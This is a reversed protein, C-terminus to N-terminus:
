SNVFDFNKIKTQNVLHDLIVYCRLKKVISIEVHKM